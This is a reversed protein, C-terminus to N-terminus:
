DFGMRRLVPLTILRLYDVPPSWKVDTGGTLRIVYSGGGFPLIPMLMQLVLTVSGATGVDFDFRGNKLRGPRYELTESGVEAGVVEGACIEAAARVGAFHQPRLGPTSRGARIRTIRVDKGLVSALAMSTRLIQGGGEGSSGDVEIMIWERVM